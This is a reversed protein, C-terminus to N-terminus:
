LGRKLEEVFAQEAMVLTNLTKAIPQYGLHKAYRCAGSELAEAVQIAHQEVVLVKPRFREWDNSELVSMELGEVDLNMLDLQRPEAIAESLIARLPRVRIPQEDTKRAGREMFSRALAADFTNMAPYEFRHYALIGEEQAVGCEINVDEPRIKNFLAMSGPMADINVGRWGRRYLLYTNSFKMPHHAGVDVFFGRPQDQFIRKLLLDEGEQSFALVGFEALRPPPPSRGLMKSLWRRANM